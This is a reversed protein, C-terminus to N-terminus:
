SAGNCTVAAPAWDCYLLDGGNLDLTRGVFATMCDLQDNSGSRWEYIAMTDFTGFQNQRRAIFQLGKNSGGPFAVANIAATFTIGGNDSGPPDMCVIGAGSGGVKVSYSCSLVTELIWTGNLATCDNLNLPPFRDQCENPFALNDIDAVVFSLYRPSMADICNNSSCTRREYCPGCDAERDYYTVSEITTTASAWVAGKRGGQASTTAKLSTNSSWGILDGDTYCAAVVGSTVPLSITTSALTTDSGSDRRGIRLTHSTGGTLQEVETYLYNDDDTYQVICRAKDGVAPASSWIFTLNADEGPASVDTSAYGSGTAESDSVQGFTWTGVTWDATATGRVLICDLCGCCAGPTWRNYALGLLLSLCLLVLFGSM